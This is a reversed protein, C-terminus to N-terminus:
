GAIKAFRPDPVLWILTVGLMLLLSILPSVFALPISVVYASLSIKGKLDSGLAKAFDSDKGHLKTLMLALITYDITCMMLDFAYLAVPIAAFENKGMFGAAFPMLSLWFLLHLNAWLM